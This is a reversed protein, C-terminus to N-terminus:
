GAHTGSWFRIRYRDPRAVALTAPCHAISRRCLGFLRDSSVVFVSSTEANAERRNRRAASDTAALEFLRTLEM